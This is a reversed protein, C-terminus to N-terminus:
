LKFYSVLAKLLESQSNLEEAAASTEESAAANDIVVDSIESIGGSVQGIASSQEQSSASINGIIELVEDANKVIVDFAQATAQASGSGADVRQISDVILGTTEEAAKQSRAALGRVEEAVVSFGKGHDGARAAEVAANLALLNTQFAIEQITKIIQSIGNSSEKIQHMSELMDKMAENGVKANETSKSSLLNAEEASQANEKTQINIKEITANLDQVSNAQSSAGEALSTASIAIQHSGLLVQESATAIESMTKHLTSVINNISQKIKDFDGEFPMTITRTLDGSEVARLCEDIESIYSNLSGVTDNIADAVTAFDGHYNGQVKASLNGMSLEQMAVKAEEIPATFSELLGNLNTMLSKWDGTHKSVDIRSRLDGSNVIKMVAGYVSKLEKQMEESVENFIKSEGELPILTKDFNGHAYEKFVDLLAINDDVIIDLVRNIGLAAEKYSGVYDSCQVRMSLGGGEAKQKMEELDEILKSMPMTMDAILNQLQSMEDRGNSRVAGGFDGQSVELAYDSLSKIPKSISNATILTIVISLAIILALAIVIIVYTLTESRANGEDIGAIWADSIGNLFENTENLENIIGQGNRITNLGLAVQREMSYDLVTVIVSQYYNELIAAVRASTEWRLEKEQQPIDGDIRVLADYAELSALADRFAAYAADHAREVNLVDGIGAYMLMANTHRLMSEFAHRYDARTDRRPYHGSSLNEHSDIVGRMGVLTFGVMLLMIITVTCFGLLIKSRIKLNNYM